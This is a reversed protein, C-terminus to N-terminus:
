LLNLRSPRIGYITRYSLMRRSGGRRKINIVQTNSRLTNALHKLFIWLNLSQSLHRWWFFQSTLWMKSLSNPTCTPKVSIPRAINLLVAGCALFGDFPPGHEYVFIDPSERLFSSSAWAAIFSLWQSRYMMFIIMLKRIQSGANWRGYLSLQQPLFEM